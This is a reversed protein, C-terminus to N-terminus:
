CCAAGRSRGRMMKGCLLFCALLVPNIVIEDFFLSYSVIISYYLFVYISLYKHLYELYRM